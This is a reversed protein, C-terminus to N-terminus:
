LYSSTLSDRPTFCVIVRAAKVIYIISLNIRSALFLGRLSDGVVTGRNTYGEPAFPVILLIIPEILLNVLSCLFFAITCTSSRVSLSSWFRKRWWLSLIVSSAILSGVVFVACSIYYYFSTSSLVEDKVGFVCLESMELSRGVHSLDIDGSKRQFESIM